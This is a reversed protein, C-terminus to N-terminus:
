SGLKIMVVKLVLGSLHMEMWKGGCDEGWEGRPFSM